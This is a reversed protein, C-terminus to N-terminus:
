CDIIRVIDQALEQTFNTYWNNELMHRQNHEVVQKVKPILEQPDQECLYRLQDLALRWRLENNAQKDYSEDIISGFTQFGLDQLHQLYNQGALVIFLRKALIPKVIKETYFNFENVANTEAVLSYYTQNYIQLPVVQSMNMRHGYYRVWQSTHNPPNDYEVGEDETIYQDSLRLDQNWKEHYTMIVQSKLFNDTIYSYAFDRHLRKCGLLIDFIKPKSNAIDLKANLFGPKVYRYFHSTTIFWDMWTITKAHKLDYNLKGCLCFTVNPRDVYNLQEVTAQHLESCFVFSHLVTPYVRDFREVWAETVPFSVHFGALKISHESTIFLDISEQKYVTQSKFHLNNNLQSFHFESVNTPNTGSDHYIGADQIVYM